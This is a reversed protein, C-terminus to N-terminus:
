KRARDRAQRENQTLDEILVENTVGPTCALLCFHATFPVSFGQPIPYHVFNNKLM